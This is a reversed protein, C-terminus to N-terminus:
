VLGDHVVLERASGLRIHLRKRIRDLCPAITDRLDLREVDGLSQVLHAVEERGVLSRRDLECVVYRLHQAAPPEIQGRGLHDLWGRRGEISVIGAHQFQPEIRRRLSFHTRLTDAIM